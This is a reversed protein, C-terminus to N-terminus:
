SNQSCSHLASDTAIFDLCIDWEERPVQEVQQCSHGLGVLLPKSSGPSEPLEALTRDYYGGGMGLRGGHLDWGVLPLFIIDLEAAACSSAYDAPEPINYQNTVLAGEPQWLIFTLGKELTIVPLYIEKKLARALNTLPQTDIEGGISLYIAIRQSSTWTPLNLVSETLTQAASNQQQQSLNQRHHRLARRMETKSTKIDAM